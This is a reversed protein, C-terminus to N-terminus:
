EEDDEDRDRILMRRFDTELPIIINSAGDRYKALCLEMDGSGQVTNAEAREKDAEEDDDDGVNVKPTARSTKKVKNLSVFIDCIRSKDYAEAADEATGIRAAAQKGLQTTCWISLKSTAAWGAIEWYVDATEFRFDKYKNSTSRIHDASDLLVMKLNPMEEALEETARVIKPMTALTVPISVIRLLGNYRKRAKKLRNLIVKLENDDFDFLKFKRHEFLSWRSDYRMATQDASMETRFDVVGFNQRIASFGLTTAVISKGRGTTASVIGVETPRIGDIIADLGKISTKIAPYEEPHEKIHKQRKLRQAFEEIWYSVTYDKDDHRSDEKLMSTFAGYAEDVDGKDLHKVAAEMATQARVFRTFKHLESLSAKPTTPKTNFLKGVLELTVVREEDDKFDSKAIKKALKPTLLEDNDRWIETITNWLWGRQETSFHHGEIIDVARSLYEKDRLSQALIEDEFDSDFSM